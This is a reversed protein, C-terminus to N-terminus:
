ANPTNKGKIVVLQATSPTAMITIWFSKLQSSDKTNAAEVAIPKPNARVIKAPIRSCRSSTAMGLPIFPEGIANIVAPRSAMAKIPNEPITYLSVGM